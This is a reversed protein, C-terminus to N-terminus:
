TQNLLRFGLDNIVGGGIRAYAFWGRQGTPRNNTVDVLHSVLEVTMGARRAILYNSFDGVVLQNTHGTTSVVDPFYASELVQKGFLQDAYAQGVGVTFAHYVNASGFRRIANNLGVSMMFNAGQRWRQPLAKWVNYLDIEGFSGATTLRVQSFTDGDLATIIGTPENSSVGAGNSFKNL